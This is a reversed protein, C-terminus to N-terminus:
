GPIIKSSKYRLHEYYALNLLGLARKLLLITDFFKDKTLGDFYIVKAVSIHQLFEGDPILNHDVDLSFLSHRVTKLFSDKKVDGLRSFARQDAPTLYASSLFRISDTTEETVEIAVRFSAALQLTAKFSNSSYEKLAYQVKEEDLWQRVQRIAQSKRRSKLM